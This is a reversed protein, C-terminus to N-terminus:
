RRDIEYRCFLQCRVNDRMFTYNSIDNFVINNLYHLCMYVQDHFCHRILTSTANIMLRMSTSVPTISKTKGRQFANKCTSDFSILIKRARSFKSLNTDATLRGAFMSADFTLEGSQVILSIVSFSRTSIFTFANICTFDSYIRIESRSVPSNKCSM